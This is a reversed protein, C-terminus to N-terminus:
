YIALWKRYMAISDKDARSQLFWLGDKIWSALSSFRPGSFDIFFEWERRQCKLALLSNISSAASKRRGQIGMGAFATCSIWIIKWGMM